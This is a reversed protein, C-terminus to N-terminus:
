PPTSRGDTFGTPLGTIGGPCFTIQYSTHLSTSNDTNCQFSSATDDFQYSYATPCAQKLWTIADQINYTVTAQSPKHTTWLQNTGTGPWYPSNDGCPTNSTTITWDVCGCCTQYAQTSPLNGLNCSNATGTTSDYKCGILVTYNGPPGYGPLPTGMGYISYLNQSGWQSSSAYGIYNTLTSFGLFEGLRRNVKGPNAPPAVDYAMGCLLPSASSSCANDAGPTVWYFDSNVNSIGTLSASPDFSWSCASLLSSGSPQIISGASSCTYVDNPNGPSSGVQNSGLPGFAKMEVPVTMGNIVSVDYVGDTGATSTLTAEMKTIPNLPMNGSSTGSVCTASNSLTTCTGTACVFQGSQMSCGTRPWLAGNIYSSVSLDITSPAQGPVQAPLYYASAPAGAPYTVLNPDPSANGSAGAANGIGYWVDFNCQNVFYIHHTSQQNSAVTSSTTTSVQSGGSPSTPTVSATVTLNPTVTPIVSATVLCNSGASLTNGSCLDYTPNTTITASGTTATISVNGLVINESMCQNTIKFQVVNDAYKYTNAPLPLVSEIALSTCTGSSAQIAFTEQPSASAETCTVAATLQASPTPAQLNTLQGYVYCSETPQLEVKNSSTGCTSQSSTTTITAASSPAITYGTAGVTQCNTLAVNGSNTFKATVFPAEDDYYTTPFPTPQTFTGTLGASPQLITSSVIPTSSAQKCHMHAALAFDGPQYPASLTGSISCSKQSGQTGLDIHSNVSGCGNSTVTLTAANSPTLVFKNSGDADGMFCDTLPLDGSNTFTATFSVTGTPLISTPFNPISGSLSYAPLNGSTVATLQPIPIRNNHYGYTLQFTAKGPATPSYKVTIHCKGNRNLTVHNCGDEVSFGRGNILTSTNMVAPGPLHSTLTYTVSSQSGVETVPFGTTPTLQWSVPDQGAYSISIASFVLWGILNYKQM